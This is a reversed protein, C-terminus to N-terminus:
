NEPILVALFIYKQAHVGGGSVLNPKDRSSFFIGAHNRGGLPRVECLFHLFSQKSWKWNQEFRLSM